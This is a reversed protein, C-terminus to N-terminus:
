SCANHWNANICQFTQEAQLAKYNIQWNKKVQRASTTSMKFRLLLRAIHLLYSINLNGDSHAKFLVKAGDFCPARVSNAYFGLRGVNEPAVNVRIWGERELWRM